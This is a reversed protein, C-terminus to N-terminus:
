NADRGLERLFSDYNNLVYELKDIKEPEYCPRNSIENIMLGYTIPFGNALYGKINSSVQDTWANCQHCNYGIKEFFGIDRDFLAKRLRRAKESNCIEAITKEHINGIIYKSSFDIVCPNVSGDANIKLAAWPNVCIKWKEQPNMQLEPYSGSDTQLSLLPGEYLNDIPLAQWFDRTRQFTKKM